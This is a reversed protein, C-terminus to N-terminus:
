GVRVCCVRAPPRHPQPPPPSLPARILDSFPQPHTNRNTTPHDISFEVGDCVRTYCPPTTVSPATCRLCLSRSPSPSPASLSPRERTSAAGAALCAWLRRCGQRHPHRPPDQAAFAFAAEPAARLPVHRCKSLRSEVYGASVGRRERGKRGKIGGEDRMEAGGYLFSGRPRTPACQRRRLRVVDLRPLNAWRWVQRREQQRVADDVDAHGEHGRDCLENDRLHTCKSRGEGEGQM